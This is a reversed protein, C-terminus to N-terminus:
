DLNDSVAFIVGSTGITASVKGNEVIGMGIAGAVNDGAGAIIKNHIWGSRNSTRWNRFSNRYNRISEYVKPLIKEDIEFPPFCKTQCKSKSM